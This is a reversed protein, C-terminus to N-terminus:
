RYLQKISGWTTRAVPLPNGFWRLQYLASSQLQVVGVGQAYWDTANSNIAGNTALRRGDLSFTQGDARVLAARPAVPAVVQGVGFSHYTGAPVTLSVDEMEQWHIDVSDVVALDPLNRVLAHSDWTLGLAPPVALYRLPPDFALAFSAPRNNFGALLVSGDADTLWYNELGNDPGGIYSKVFVTRGLLDLTGTIAEAYGGGATVYEWRNNVELPLWPGGDARAVGPAALLLLLAISFLLGKRASPPRPSM